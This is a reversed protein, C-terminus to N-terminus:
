PRGRMKLLQWALPASTCLLKQLPTTGPAADRAAWHMRDVCEMGVHLMNTVDHFYGAGPQLFIAPVQSCFALRRRKSADHGLATDPGPWGIPRCLTRHSIFSCAWHPASPSWQQAWSLLVACPGAASRVGRGTKRRLGPPLLTLPLTTKAVQKTGPLKRPPHTLHM